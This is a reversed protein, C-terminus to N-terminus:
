LIQGIHQAYRSKNAMETANTHSDSLQSIFIDKRIIEDCTKHMDSRSIIDSNHISVQGVDKRAIGRHRLEPSVEACVLFKSRELYSAAGSSHFINM